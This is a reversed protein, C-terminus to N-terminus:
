DGNSRQGTTVSRVELPYGAQVDWGTVRGDRFYVKSNGYEFVRDNFGTPIGQVALVEEKRSGVAFYGKNPMNPKSPLLKTRLPHSPSNDWGTVRGDSFYVKSNGYTFVRDDFETPPGQVALVEKKTSDVTFHGSKFGPSGVINRGSLPTSRAQVHSRSSDFSHALEATKKGPISPAPQSPVRSGLDDKSLEIGSPNRSSVHPLLKNETRNVLYGIIGIALVIGVIYTRWRTLIGTKYTSPTNSPSPPPQFHPPRRNREAESTATTSSRHSRGPDVGQRVLTERRERQHRLILYAGNIEKIKEQANSRLIPDNPFRDPHWAKALDRYTQKIEPGTANADLGLVRLAKQIDNMSSNRQHRFRPNYASDNKARNTSKHNDDSIAANNKM